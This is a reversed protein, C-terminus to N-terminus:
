NALYVIEKIQSLSFNSARSRLSYSQGGIYVADAGYALAVKAKEIDKSPSLLEIM